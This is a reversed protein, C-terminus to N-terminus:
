DLDILEINTKNDKFRTTASDASNTRLLKVRRTESIANKKIEIEKSELKKKLYSEKDLLFMALETADEPNSRASQLALDMEYVDIAQGNIEKKIKKTAFDVLKQYQKDTYGADRVRSKFEKTYTKLAENQQEILNDIHQKEAEKLKEVHETIRVSATEAMKTLSDSAKAGLIIVDVEEKTTDSKYSYYKRILDEADQPNDIDYQRVNEIETQYEILKKPDGGKIIFDVIEKRDKDVNEISISKSKYDELEQQSSGKILDIVEKLSLDVDNIDAELEQGDEDIYLFKEIGVEKLLKKYSESSNDTKNVIESLVEKEETIDEEKTNSNPLNDDKDILSEDIEEIFINSTDAIKEDQGLEDLNSSDFIFTAVNNQNEM